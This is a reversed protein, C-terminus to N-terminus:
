VLLNITRCSERKDVGFCTFLYVMGVALKRNLCALGCCGVEIKIHRLNLVVAQQYATDYSRTTSIAVALLVIQRNEGVALQNGIGKRECLVLRARQM